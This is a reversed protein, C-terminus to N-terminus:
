AARPGYAWAAWNPTASSRWAAAAEGNSPWGLYLDNMSPAMGIAPGPGSIGADVGISTGRGGGPGSMTGVGGPGSVGGGASGSTLGGVGSCGGGGLGTSGTGGLAQPPHRGSPSRFVEM